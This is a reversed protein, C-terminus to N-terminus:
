EEILKIVPFGLPNNETALYEIREKDKSGKYVDGVDYIHENSLDKFKYIVEYEKKAETAATEVVETETTATEKVKATNAAKTTRKAPM